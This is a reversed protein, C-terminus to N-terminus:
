WGDDGDAPNRRCTASSHGGEDEERKKVRSYM